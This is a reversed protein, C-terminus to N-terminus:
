KSQEALEAPEATPLLLLTAVRDVNGAGMTLIIDDEKALERSKEAAHEFSDAYSAHGGKELIASVLDKAHVTGLDPERAAYIDIVIVADALCLAVAFDDLLALTRTYTHPQFVCIVRKKASRYTADLTARIATPHHAYDDIIRVGNVTGKEEFRRGTGTFAALGATIEKPTLGVGHCLAFCGMANSLNHRGPVNLYVPGLDEGACVVHFNYFGENEHINQAQYYRLATPPLEQLAELGYATFPRKVLASLQRCGADDWNLVLSGEETINQSFLAFSALIDNLDKFFDLHDAEINLVLADNPFFHLFSNKYECAEMVFWDEGGLRTNGQISPLIGGIHVTPNKDAVMLVSAIFGTSTTKGHTGSVAITKKYEKALLGLFVSREMCPIGKKKAALWEPNDKAIAATYVVLTQAQVMEACHPVCIDAQLTRLRQVLESESMDSGTVGIGRHLLIQALGSMSIGGIGIFHVPGTGIIEELSDKMRKLPRHGMVKTM